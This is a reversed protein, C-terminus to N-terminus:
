INLSKGLNNGGKQSKFQEFRNNAPTMPIQNLLLISNANPVCLFIYLIINPAAIILRQFLFAKKAYSHCETLRWHRCVTCQFQVVSTHYEEIRSNLDIFFLKIKEGCNSGAM